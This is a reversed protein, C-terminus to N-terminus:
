KHMPHGLFFYFTTLVSSRHMMVEESPEPAALVAPKVLDGWRGSRPKALDALANKRSANLNV